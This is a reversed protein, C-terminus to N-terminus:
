RDTTRGGSSDRSPRAPAGREVEVFKPATVAPNPEVPSPQAPPSAQEQQENRVLGGSAPEGSQWVAYSALAVGAVLLAITFWGFGMRVWRPKADVRSRMDRAAEFYRATMSAISDVYLNKKFHAEVSGDLPLMLVRSVTLARFFSWFAITNLVAAVLYTAVFVHAVAKPSKLAELFHDFGAALLGAVFTPLPVLRSARSEAADLRAIDGSWAEKALSFLQEYKKVAREDTDTRDSSTTPPPPEGPVPNGLPM